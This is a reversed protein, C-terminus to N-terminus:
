WPHDEKTTIYVPGYHYDYETVLYPETAERWERYSTPGANLPWHHDLLGMRESDVWDIMGDRDVPFVDTQINGRRPFAFTPVVLADGQDLRDTLTDSSLVSDSAPLWLLSIPTHMIYQSRSFLRAMNRAAQLRTRTAQPPLLILHIDVYKM